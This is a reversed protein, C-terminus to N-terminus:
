GLYAIGQMIVLEIIPSFASFIMTTVLSTAVTNYWNYSFDSYTGNLGIDLGAPSTNANVLLILIATNFFQMIFIMITSFYAIETESHLKVYQILYLIVRRLLINIVVTLTTV